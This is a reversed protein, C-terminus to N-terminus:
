EAGPNLFTVHGMKRGTKAAAKGYLHICAGPRRALDSVSGIEDGLLNEMTAPGLHIPMPLPMDLAARVALEFQDPRAADLSWHGSNHPRPAMENAMLTGDEAVFFEVALLGELELAEAIKRTTSVAQERLTESVGAPVMTRRLIGNEHRNEAVPLWTEAKSPNRAIIVSLETALAIKQELICEVRDLSNWAAELDTSPDPIPIQGHGDYGLRATKLIAPGPLTKAHALTTADTLPRWPAVGVGIRELFTKEASRDQSVALVSAGPRVPVKASLRDLASVPVNEFELTIADVSAAFADLAAPDDYPAITTWDTVQTAPAGPEPSFVHARVGLRAAAIALYRGLQGGGLIGIKGNM